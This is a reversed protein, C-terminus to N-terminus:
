PFHPCPGPIEGVPEVSTARPRVLLCTPPPPPPTLPPTTAMAVGSVVMQRYMAQRNAELQMRCNGYMESGPQAGYSRCRLDDRAAIQAACGGLMTLPLLLIATRVIWRM